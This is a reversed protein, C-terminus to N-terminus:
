PNEWENPAYRQAEWSLFARVLSNIREFEAAADPQVDADLFAVLAPRLVRELRDTEVQSPGSQEDDHEWLREVGRLVRGLVFLALPRDTQWAYEEILAIVPDLNDPFLGRQLRARLESSFNTTM